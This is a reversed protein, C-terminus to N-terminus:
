QASNRETATHGRQRALMDLRTEVEYWSIESLGLKRRLADGGMGEVFDRLACTWRLIEFTLRTVNATEAVGTLVYELNRGTWPFLTQRTPYQVLYENLTPVWTAPLSIRREKHRRRANRYRIWVAPREPDGLDLHNLQISVCEAKKIGTSLILTLLLHPRADPTHAENGMRTAQTVELLAAVETNDLVEPLPASVARHILPASIDRPLVQVESLWGFFVKLTTVRRELTKPSCPVGRGSEIWKLFAGLTATSIDEVVTGPGLYDHLLQMDLRFAQQTHETFGREAMYRAFASMASELTAEPPFQLELSKDLYEPEDRKEVAFLPLQQPESDYKDAV